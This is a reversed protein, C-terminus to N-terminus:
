LNSEVKLLYLVPWQRMKQQGWDCIYRLDTARLAGDVTTIFENNGNIKCFFYKRFTGKTCLETSSVPFVIGQLAHDLPERISLGLLWLLCCRNTGKIFVCCFLSINFLNSIPPIFAAPSVLSTKNSFSPNSCPSSSLIINKFFPLYLSNWTSHIKLPNFAEQM